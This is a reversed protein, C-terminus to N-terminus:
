LTAFDHIPYSRSTIRCGWTPDAITTTDTITDAPIPGVHRDILVFNKCRDRVSPTDFSDLELDHAFDNRINKLNTLDKYADDSLIGMLYAVDIKISFPGLAGSPRFLNVAIVPMDTRLRSRLAHELRRETISGAVIGAARDSDFEIQEFPNPGIRKEGKGYYYFGLGDTSILFDDGGFSTASPSQTERTSTFTTVRRLFKSINGAENRPFGYGSWGFGPHRVWFTAFRNESDPLVYWRPNYAALPLIGEPLNPPVAELMQGRANGLHTLLAEVSVTDTAAVWLTKDASNFRLVVSRRDDAIGTEVSLSQPGSDEKETM